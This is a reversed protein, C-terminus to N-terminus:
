EKNLKCLRNREALTAQIRNALAVAGGYDNDAVTTHLEDLMGDLKAEIEVLVESSVPDSFRFEENLADLVKKTEADPCRSAILAAKSRLARMASVDKKLQVEQKEIEDRVIEAAIFGIASAALVLVYIILPLWIPVYLALAMFLIGAVLQILLYGLGIRAIPFGYLKSKVPEGNDFAIHFVYAQVLIAIATFAYSIWFVGNKVFPVAFAIATFSVFLIALIVIGKIKVKTLKM